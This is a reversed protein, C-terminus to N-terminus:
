PTRSHFKQRTTQESPYHSLGNKPRSSPTKALNRQAAIGHAISTEQGTSFISFLTSFRASQRRNSAPYATSGTSIGHVATLKSRVKSATARVVGYASAHVSAPCYTSSYAKPTHQGQEATYVVALFVARASKACSRRHLGSRWLWKLRSCSLYVSFVFFIKRTSKSIM